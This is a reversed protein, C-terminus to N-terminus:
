EGNNGIIGCLEVGNWMIECWKVGNGVIVCGNVGNWVMGCWEGGKEM